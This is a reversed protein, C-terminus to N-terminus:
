NASRRVWTIKHSIFCSLQRKIDEVVAGLATLNKSTGKIMAAVVQSDLELHVRQIGLDKARQIAKRCAILEAADPSTVHAIHDSLAGRFAGQNDRFIAGAGGVGRSKDLAADSNVKIWGSEPPTWKEAQAPLKVVADKEHTTIWEKHYHLASKVVTMPEAIRTGDRTDNRALWLAYVAQIM